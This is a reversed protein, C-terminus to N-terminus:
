KEKGFLLALGSPIIVLLADGMGTKCAIWTSAAMVGIVALKKMDIEIAIRGDKM